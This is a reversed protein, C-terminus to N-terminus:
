GMALVKLIWPNVSCELWIGLVYIGSDLLVFLLFIVKERHNEIGASGPIQNRRNWQMNRRADWLLVLLAYAALYLLIQPFGSLMMYFIGPFGYRGLCSAFVFGCSLGLWGIWFNLFLNGRLFNWIFLLLMWPILRVPLVQWMIEQRNQGVNALNQIQTEFVFGMWLNEDRLWLNAAFVGFFFCGLFIVMCVHLMAIKGPQKVTKTIM